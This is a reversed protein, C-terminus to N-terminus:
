DKTTWSASRRNKLLGEQYDNALKCLSDVMNPYKEKLNKKSCSNIIFITLLFVLTRTM